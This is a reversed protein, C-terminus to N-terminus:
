GIGRGWCGTTKAAEHSPSLQQQELRALVFFDIANRPWAHDKVSPLAPREPSIFAWHNEYTAGEDIWKTLLEIQEATLSRGSDPPPMRQSDDDSRIRQAMESEAANGPVIAAHGDRDALADERRDLRLEAERTQEDHGHCHFCNEALIPRIDRNFSLTAESTTQGHLIRPSLLLITSSLVCIALRCLRAFDAGRCQNVTRSM